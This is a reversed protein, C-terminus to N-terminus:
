GEFPHSPEKTDERKTGSPDHDPCYSPNPPKSRLLGPHWIGERGCTACKLRNDVTLARALETAEGRSMMGMWGNSAGSDLQASITFKDGPMVHTATMSWGKGRKVWLVTYRKERKLYQTEWQGGPKSTRLIDCERVPVDDTEGNEHDVRDWARLTKNVPDEGESDVTTQSTTYEDTAVIAEREADTTETM